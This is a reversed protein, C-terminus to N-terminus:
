PEEIAPAASLQRYKMMACVYTRLYWGHTGFDEDGPYTYIIKGNPNICKKGVVVEYGQLQDNRYVEWVGCHKDKDLAINKLVYGARVFTKKASLDKFEVNFTSM